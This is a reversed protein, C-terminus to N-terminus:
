RRPLRKVIKLARMQKCDWKLVDVHLKALTARESHLGCVLLNDLLAATTPAIFHVPEERPRQAFKAKRVSEDCGCNPAVLM